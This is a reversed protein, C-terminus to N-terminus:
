IKKPKLSYYNYQQKTIEKDSGNYNYELEALRRIRARACLYLRLSLLWEIENVLSLRRQYYDNYTM